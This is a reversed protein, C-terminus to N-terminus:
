VIVFSANGRPAAHNEILQEDMQQDELQKTAEEAEPKPKSARKAGPTEETEVARLLDMLHNSQPDESGARRYQNKRAAKAVPDQIQRSKTYLSFPESLTAASPTNDHPQHLLLLLHFKQKAISSNEFRPQKLMSAYTPFKVSLSMANSEMLSSGLRICFPTLESVDDVLLPTNHLREPVDMTSVLFTSMVCGSIEETPITVQPQARKRGTPPPIMGQVRRNWVQGPSISDVRLQPLPVTSDQTRMFKDESKVIEIRMENSATDGITNEHEFLEETNTENNMETVNDNVQGVADETESADEETVSKECVREETTLIDQLQAIAQTIASRKQADTHDV